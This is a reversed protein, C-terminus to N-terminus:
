SDKCGVGRLFIEDEFNSFMGPFLEPYKELMGSELEWTAEETGHHRWLIKVLRLTKGRLVKDRTDLIQVPATEYSVDAELQLDTWDLVHSPDPVYRRLM